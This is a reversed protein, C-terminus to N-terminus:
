IFSGHQHRSQQGTKGEVLFRGGNLRRMGLAAAFDVYVAEENDIHFGFDFESTQGKRCDFVLTYPEERGFMRYTVSEFAQTGYIRAMIDDIRAKDFIDSKDIISRHLLYAEEKPTLGSFEVSGVRVPTM